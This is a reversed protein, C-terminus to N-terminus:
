LEFCKKNKSCVDNIRRIVCCGTHKCIVKQSKRYYVIDNDNVRKVSWTVNNLDKFDVDDPCKSGIQLYIKAPINKM